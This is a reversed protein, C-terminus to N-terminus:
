PTRRRDADLKKLRDLEDNLQKITSERNKVDSQARAVDARLGLIVRVPAAYSSQPYDRLLRNFTDNASADKPFNISQSVGLRFLVRDNGNAQPYSQLYVNYSREAQIFDGNEFASDGEMLAAPIAAPVNPAPVPFVTVPTTRALVPAEPVVLAPPAVVVPASPPSVTSSAGRTKRHCATVMMLLLLVAAKRWNM